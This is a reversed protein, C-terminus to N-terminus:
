SPCHYLSRFIYSMHCFHNVGFDKEPNGGREGKKPLDEKQFPDHPNKFFLPIKQSKIIYLLTYINKEEKKYLHLIKNTTIIIFTM